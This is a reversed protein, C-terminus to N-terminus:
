EGKTKMANMYSSKLKHQHEKSLQSKPIRMRLEGDEKTITFDKIGSNDLAYLIDALAYSAFAFDIYTEKKTETETEMAQEVQKMANVYQENSTNRNKLYERYEYLDKTTMEVDITMDPNTKLLAELYENQEM